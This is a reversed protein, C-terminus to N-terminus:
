LIYFRSSSRIFKSAVTDGMIGLRRSHRSYEPPSSRFLLLPGGGSGYLRRESPYVEIEYGARVVVTKAAVEVESGLCLVM